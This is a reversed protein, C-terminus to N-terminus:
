AAESAVVAARAGLKVELRVRSPAASNSKRSISRTAICEQKEYCRAPPRLFVDIEDDLQPLARRLGCFGLV